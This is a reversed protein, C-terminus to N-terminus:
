EVKNRSVHWLSDAPTGSCSRLTVAPKALVLGYRCLPELIKGIFRALLIM